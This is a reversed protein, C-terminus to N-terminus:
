AAGDRGEVSGAAAEREFKVADYIIGINAFYHVRHYKEATNKQYEFLAEAPPDHAIKGAAIEECAAVVHEALRITQPLPNHGSYLTVDPGVTDIFRRVVNAYAAFCEGYTLAPAELPIGMFEPLAARHEPTNYYLDLNHVQIAPSNIGDGSFCYGGERDWFAVSGNSHGPLAIVEIRVGGLDFVDGDDIWRFQTGESDLMHERGYEIMEPSGLSFGVIDNLRKEVKFAQTLLMWEDRRCCYREDFLMASGAHDISGHTVACIMPKDSGVVSEIYRRLDGTMGMGSDIVLVKETGVIVGITFRFEHSYGETVVFLRDSKRDHSFINLYTM